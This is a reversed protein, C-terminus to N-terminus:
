HCLDIFAAAIAQAESDSVPTAPYVLQFTVDCGAWSLGVVNPNSPPVERGVRVGRIEISTTPRDLASPPLQHLLVSGGGALAINLTATPFAPDVFVEGSRITGGPLPSSPLVLRFPLLSHVEELSAERRPLDRGSIFLPFPADGPPGDTSGSTDGCAALAFLGLVFWWRLAIRTTRRHHNTSLFM